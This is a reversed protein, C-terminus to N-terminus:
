AQSEHVLAEYRAVAFARYRRLWVVPGLERVTRYVPYPDLISARDQLSGAFTPVRSAPVADREPPSETM